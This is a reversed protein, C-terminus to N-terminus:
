TRRYAVFTFIDQKAVFTFIDDKAVFTGIGDFSMDPLWIFDDQFNYDWIETDKSVWEETM